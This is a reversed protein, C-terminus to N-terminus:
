GPGAEAKGSQPAGGVIEAPSAFTYGIAHVTKMPFADGSLAEVKRRLRGVVADLRRNSIEDQRYGLVKILEARAVPQGWSATLREMLTMEKATLTCVVGTPSRLQWSGRDVQWTRAMTTESSAPRHSSSSSVRRALNRVALALERCDVPKVLYADAGADRGQLRDGIGSRATLMIIGIDPRGRLVRAIAFGDDGPLGIDLVVVDCPDAAMVKYAELSNGADRVTLGALRLCDVLTGRLDSDDEVVLVKVM